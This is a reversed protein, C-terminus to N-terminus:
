REQNRKKIELARKNKRSKEWRLQRERSIRSIGLSERRKQNLTATKSRTKKKQAQVQVRLKELKDKEKAIIEENKREKSLESIRSASSLYIKKKVLAM